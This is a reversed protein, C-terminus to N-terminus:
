SNGKAIIAELDAVVQKAKALALNLHELANRDASDVQFTTASANAQSLYNKATSLYLPIVEAIKSVRRVSTTNFYIEKIKNKTTM